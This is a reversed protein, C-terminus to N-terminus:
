PEHADGPEAAITLSSLPAGAAAMAQELLGAYARLTVASADSGTQVQIQVQDGALTVTAAVKGLLPFRFRVGSRWVQEPQAQEGSDRGDGHRPEDRPERRVEWQMPQGPWAEGQWQVRGQEHAHLQQNIMLAASLDPGSAQARAGGDAMAQQQRQMQPERMLDALSREGKVWEAVHSEYFLGSQSLATQLHQAVQEPVPPAGAAVLPTKGTLVVPAGAPTAPAATLVTSLVRAATSLTPPPTSADLSPLESAPILPAKALLAAGATAPRALEAAGAGPQTGGQALLASQAAAQNAAAGAATGAGTNAPQAGTPLSPQATAAQATSPAAGPASATSGPTSGPSGPLRAASAADAAPPNPHYLQAEAEAGPPADSYVLTAAAGPANGLQFTPRPQAAIVTLPVESGVQVGQPLLMRAANDAVRVLFSGDPYKSLVTAQLSQGVLAQLNRQFAAQRGDGIPPTGHVTDAATLPGVNVDLRPLM